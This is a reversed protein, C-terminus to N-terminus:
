EMTVWYTGVWSLRVANEEAMGRGPEAEQNYIVGWPKGPRTAASSQGKWSLLNFGSNASLAEECLASAGSLKCM